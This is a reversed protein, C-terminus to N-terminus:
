LFASARGAGFSLGRARRGGLCSAEWTNLGECQVKGARSLATGASSPFEHVNVPMQANLQVGSVAM